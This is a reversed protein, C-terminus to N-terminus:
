QMLAHVIARALLAWEHDTSPGDDPEEEWPAPVTRAGMEGLEDNHYAVLLKSGSWTAWGDWPSNSLMSVAEGESIDFIFTVFVRGAEGFRVEYVTSEGYGFPDAAVEVLRGEDYVRYWDGGAQASDALAQIDPDRPAVM